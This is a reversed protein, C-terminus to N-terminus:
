TGGWWSVRRALVLFARRFCDGRFPHSAAMGAGLWVSDSKGCLLLQGACNAKGQIASRVYSGATLGLASLCSEGTARTVAMRRAGHRQVWGTSFPRPRASDRDLNPLPDGAVSILSQSTEDCGVATGFRGIRQVERPSLAVGADHAKNTQFPRVFGGASKCRSCLFM